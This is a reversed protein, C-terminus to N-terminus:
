KNTTGEYQQTLAIPDEPSAWVYWHEALPKFGRTISPFANTKPNYAVGNLNHHWGELMVFLIGNHTMAPFERDKIVGWPLGKIPKSHVKGEIYSEFLLSNTEMNWGNTKVFGLVSEMANSDHMTPPPIEDWALGFSPDLVVRDFIWRASNTFKLDYNTFIGTKREEDLFRQFLIERVDTDTNTSSNTVQGTARAVLTLTYAMFLAIKSVNM